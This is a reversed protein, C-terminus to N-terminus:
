LHADVISQQIANKLASKWSMKSIIRTGNVLHNLKKNSTEPHRKAM